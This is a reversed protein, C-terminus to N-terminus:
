VLRVFPACVVVQLSLRLDHLTQPQTQPSEFTCTNFNTFCCKHRELDGRPGRMCCESHQIRGHSAIHYTAAQPLLQATVM